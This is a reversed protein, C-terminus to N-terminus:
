PLRDGPCGLFIGYHAHAESSNGPKTPSDQSSGHISSPWHKLSHQEGTRPVELVSFLSCARSIDNICVPTHEMNLVRSFPLLLSLIVLPSQRRSKKIFHATMAPVYTDNTWMESM